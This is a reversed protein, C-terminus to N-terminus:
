SNKGGGRTAQRLRSTDREVHSFLTGPLTSRTEMTQVGDSTIEDIQRAGISVTRRQRAQPEAKSRHLSTTSTAVGIADNAHYTTGELHEGAVQGFM